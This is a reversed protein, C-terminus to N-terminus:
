LLAVTAKTDIVIVQRNSEETRLGEEVVSSVFTIVANNEKLFEKCAYIGKTENTCSDKENKHGQDIFGLERAIFFIELHPRYAKCMVLLARKRERGIWWKILHYGGGPVKDPKCLQFLHHYNGRSMASQVQLAHQISPHNCQVPTLEKLLTNMEAKNQTHLLYLIRYATFEGEGAVLTYLPISSLHCNEGSQQELQQQHHEEYLIKLQGQCQNYEGLDGMEMALRAHWEYVQITFENRIRQVTLDQRLSKLQDCIFAYSSQLSSELNAKASLAQQWKSQLHVLSKKM